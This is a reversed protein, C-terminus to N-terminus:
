DAKHEALRWVPDFVCVEPHSSLVKLFDLFVAPLRADEGPFRMEVVVRIRGEYRFPPVDFGPLPLHRLSRSCFFGAGPLLRAASQQGFEPVLPFASIKKR